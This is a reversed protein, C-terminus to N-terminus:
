VIYHTYTQYGCLVVMIGAMLWNINHTLPKAHEDIWHAFRTYFVFTLFAGLGAGLAFGVKGWVRADFYDENIFWTGLAFLYPIAIFNVLAVGLGSLFDGTDASQEDAEEEDVTNEEDYNGGDHLWARYAFVFALGGLLFPSWEKIWEIWSEPNPLYTTIVMAVGAQLAYMVGIGGAYTYGANRGEHLTLDVTTMNLMGPFGVGAIAVGTGCVLAILLDM